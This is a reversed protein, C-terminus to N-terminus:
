KLAKLIGGMSAWLSRHAIIVTNKDQGVRCSSQSARFNTVMTKQIGELGGPEGRKEKM